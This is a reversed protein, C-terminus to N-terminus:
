TKNFSKECSQEADQQMRCHIRQLYLLKEYLDWTPEFNFRFMDYYLHTKWYFVICLSHQMSPLQLLRLTKNLMTSIINQTYSGSIFLFFGPAM